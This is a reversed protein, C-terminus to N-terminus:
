TLIWRLIFLIISSYFMHENLIWWAKFVILPNVMDLFINPWSEGIGFNICRLIQLRTPISDKVVRSSPSNLTGMSSQMLSAGNLKLLSPNSTKFSYFDDVLHFSSFLAKLSSVPTIIWHNNWVSCTWLNIRKAQTYNKKKKQAFYGQITEYGHRAFYPLKTTM